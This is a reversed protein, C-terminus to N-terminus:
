LYTFTKTKVLGVSSIKQPHNRAGNLLSASGVGLSHFTWGKEIPSKTAKSNAVSYTFGARKELHWKLM